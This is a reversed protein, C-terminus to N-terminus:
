ITADRQNSEYNYWSERIWSRWTASFNNFNELLILFLPLNLLPIIWFSFQKKCIFIVCPLTRHWPISLTVEQILALHTGFAIKRALESNSLDHLPNHVLKNREEHSNSKTVNRAWSSVIRYKSDTLRLIDTYDHVEWPSFIWVWVLELEEVIAASLLLPTVFVLHQLYLQICEQHHTSTGHSVHLATELYLYVTYRQM